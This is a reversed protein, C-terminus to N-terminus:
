GATGVTAGASKSAAHSLDANPQEISSIQSMPLKLGDDLELVVAGKEVRVTKVKGSIPEGTTSDLGEVTKGILNSASGINNQLVLSTLSSQLTQQSQLQGIQSMQALLQENKAPEMPDQNQLQTVMMNIFDEVKLQSKPNITKAAVKGETGSTGNLASVAM